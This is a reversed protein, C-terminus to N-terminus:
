NFEKIIYNYVNNIEKELKIINDPGPGPLKNADHIVIPNLYKMLCFAATQQFPRLFEEMSFKHYSDSSYSSKPSGATISLLFEKDKLKEEGKGFSFGYELVDDFWKKLLPPSSYWYFPFQFVIRDYKLLDEQEKKVDINWDPYLKYLNKIKVDKITSLKKIVGKNVNSKDSNPHIYIILLKM